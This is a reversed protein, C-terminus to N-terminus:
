FSIGRQLNKNTARFQDKSILQFDKIILLIFYLLCYDRRQNSTNVESNNKKISKFELIMPINNILQERFDLIKSQCFSQITMYQM